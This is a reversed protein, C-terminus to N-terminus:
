IIDLHEAIIKPCELLTYLSSLWYEKNQAELDKLMEKHKNAKDAIFKLSISM